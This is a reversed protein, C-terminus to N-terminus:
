RGAEQHHEDDAQRLADNELLLEKVRAEAREARAKLETWATEAPGDVYIRGAYRRLKTELERIRRLCPGCDPFEQREEDDAHRHWTGPLKIIDAPDAASPRTM